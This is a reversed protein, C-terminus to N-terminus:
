ESSPYSEELKAEGKNIPRETEWYGGEILDSVTVLKHEGGRLIDMFEKGEVLKYLIDLM